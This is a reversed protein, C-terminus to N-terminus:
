RRTPEVEGGWDDYEKVLVEGPSGASVSEGTHATRGPAALGARAYVQATFTDVDEDSVQEAFSDALKLLRKGVNM